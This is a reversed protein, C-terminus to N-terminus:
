LRHHPVDDVPNGILREGTILIMKERMVISSLRENIIM